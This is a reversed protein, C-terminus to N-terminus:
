PKDGPDFATSAGPDLPPPLNKETRLDETTNRFVYSWVESKKPGTQGKSLAQYWGGRNRTVLGLAIMPRFRVPGDGAKRFLGPTRLATPKVPNKLDAFMSLAYRDRLAAEWDPEDPGPAVKPQNQTQLETSPACSVMSFPQTRCAPPQAWAFPASI